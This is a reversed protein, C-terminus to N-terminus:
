NKYDEDVKHLYSLVEKDGKKAQEVRKCSELGGTEIM